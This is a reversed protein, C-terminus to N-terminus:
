EQSKAFVCGQLQVFEMDSYKAAQFIFEHIDASHGGERFASNM